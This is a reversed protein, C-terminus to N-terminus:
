SVFQLKSTLWSDGKRVMNLQFRYYRAKRQGNTDKNLVSSDAAVFVIASNGDIDGIGVSKITGQSEARSEEAISKLNVKARDYESHFDGTSGALVKAILPDMNKYDVTLFANTEARAAAKVDAYEQARKEDATSGPLASAGQVALVVVCVVVLVLLLALVANLWGWSRPGRPPAALDSV